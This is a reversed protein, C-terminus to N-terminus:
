RSAGLSEAMVCIARLIEVAQIDNRDRPKPALWLAVRLLESLLYLRLERIM